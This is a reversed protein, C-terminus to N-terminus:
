KAFSAKEITVSEGQDQECGQPRQTLPCYAQDIAIGKQVMNLHFSEFRLDKVIGRGGRWTKIRVAFRNQEAIVSRFYLNEAKEFNAPHEGISGIIIGKGHQLKLGDVDITRCRKPAIARTSCVRTRKQVNPGLSIVGM